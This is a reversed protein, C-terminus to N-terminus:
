TSVARLQFECHLAFVSVQIALDLHDAVLEGPSAWSPPTVGNVRSRMPGLGGGTLPFPSGYNARASPHPPSSM